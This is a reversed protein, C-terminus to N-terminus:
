VGSGQEEILTQAYDDYWAIDMFSLYNSFYYTYVKDLLSKSYNPNWSAEKGIPDRTFGERLYSSVLGLSPDPSNAELRGFCREILSSPMMDVKTTSEYIFESGKKKFLDAEEWHVKPSDDSTIAHIVSVYPFGLSRMASAQSFGYQNPSKGQKKYEARVVKLEIAMVRSLIFEGRQYPLILLDIDGPFRISSDIKYSDIFRGVMCGSDKSRNRLFSNNLSLYILGFLKRQSLIRLGVLKEESEQWLKEPFIGVQGKSPIYPPRDIIQRHYDPAM